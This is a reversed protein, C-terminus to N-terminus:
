GEVFVAWGYVETLDIQYMNWTSSKQWSAWFRNNGAEVPVLATSVASLSRQQTGSGGLVGIYTYHIDTIGPSTGLGLVCATSDGYITVTATVTLLAYGNTSANVDLPVAQPSEPIETVSAQHHEDSFTLGAPGQPGTDGQPGQPGQLGPEGQPGAPGEPGILGQEGQPGLPGQDGQLGIPGQEGQPGMPGPEGQPGQPGTIVSPTLQQTAVSSVVGSAIIAVVLGIIFTTTSLSIKQSMINRWKTCKKTKPINHVTINFSNNLNPNFKLARTITLRTAVRYGAIQCWL